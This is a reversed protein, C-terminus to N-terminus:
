NQDLYQIQIMVLSYIVLEVHQYLLNENEIKRM